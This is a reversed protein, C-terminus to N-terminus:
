CIAYISGPLQNVRKTMLLNLLVSHLHGFTFQSRSLLEDITLPQNQLLEILIREDATLEQGQEKRHNSSTRSPSSIRHSYEELIDEVCSILKAGQKILAITGQSKPSSLPGPIAFIDRSEDLAQDATILSGSQLAAEVVVVGLSLGAIIRNRQPFLGPHPKTNLPYESLLLGNLAILQYLWKNESPYMFGISSGLVAITSGVGRLAGEHASADIGKALGSIVCMGNASLEESFQEAMKRGYITPNRTGVVAMCPSHLLESRGQCYLVWPPEATQKLLAPYDGDFITVMKIEKLHYKELTAKVYQEDMQKFAQVVAEARSGTLGLQQWDRASLGAAEALIYFRNIIILLTKWGVNEAQHLMILVTRNDM